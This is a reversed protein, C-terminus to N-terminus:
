QNFISMCPMGMIQFGQFQSSDDCGPVQAVKIWTLNKIVVRFTKHNKLGRGAFRGSDTLDVLTLRYMGRQKHLSDTLLGAMM